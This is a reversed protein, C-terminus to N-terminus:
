IQINKNNEKSEIFDFKDLNLNNSNINNLENIAALRKILAPHSSFKEVWFSMFGSSNQADNILSTVNVRKYLKKGAGLILLGSLAGNSSLSYGINDCTYECARSYASNLFLILRSPLTIILKFFGVHNRKIHGLEHGIIFSVADLGEEYALEFVDSYLVIFNKRAFRMAFANLLGNGQLIYMDPVKKLGLLNSHKKLIDFIDSFQDKTVRISNGKLFGIFFAKFLVSFLLFIVLYIYFIFPIKRYYHYLGCYTLLSILVMIGFYIKEKPNIKFNM